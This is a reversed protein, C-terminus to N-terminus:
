RITKRCRKGIKRKFERSRVRVMGKSHPPTIPRERGVADRYKNRAPHARPDIHLDPPGPGALGNDRGDRIAEAHVDHEVVDPACASVAALEREGDDLGLVLDKCTTSRVRM